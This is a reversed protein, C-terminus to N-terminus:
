ANRYWHNLTGLSVEDSDSGSGSDNVDEDHEGDSGSSGTADESSDEVANDELDSDPEPEYRPRVRRQLLSGPPM